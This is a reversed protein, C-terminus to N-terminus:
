DCLQTRIVEDGSLWGDDESFNSEEWYLDDWGDEEINSDGDWGDQPKGITNIQLHPVLRAIVEVNEKFVNFSDWGRLIVSELRSHTQVVQEVISTTLRLENDLTLHTINPVVTGTALARLDDDCLGSAQIALHDLHASYHLISSWSDSTTSCGQILLSRLQPHAKTFPILFDAFDPGSYKYKISLSALNPTDISAALRTIDEVHMRAVELKELCNMPIGRLEGTQVETFYLSCSDLSLFNLNVIGQLANLLDELEILGGNSWKLRRLSQPLPNSSSAWSEFSYGRIWLDQLNPFWEWMPSVADEVDDPSHILLELKVLSSFIPDHEGLVDAWTAFARPDFGYLNIRKIRNSERSIIDLCTTSQSLSQSALRDSRMRFQLPEEESRTIFLEIIPLPLMDDIATWLSPMGLTVSRFYSNVHSLTLPIWIENRYSHALHFIHRLLEIPLFSIPCPAAPDEEARKISPSGDDTLGNLVDLPAGADSSYVSESESLALKEELRTAIGQCRPSLDQPQIARIEDLVWRYLSEPDWEETWTEDDADSDSDEASQKGPGLGSEQNVESSRTNLLGLVEALILRVPFLGTYVSGCLLNDDRDAKLDNLIATLLEIDASDSFRLIAGAAGSM